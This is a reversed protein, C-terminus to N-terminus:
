QHKDSIGKINSSRDSGFTAVSCDSAYEPTPGSGAGVVAESSMVAVEPFVTLQITIQCSPYSGLVICGVVEGWLVTKLVCLGKLDRNM